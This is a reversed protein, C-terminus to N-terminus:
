LDCRIVRFEIEGGSPDVPQSVRGETRDLITQIARTNGELAQSVLIFALVQGFTVQPGCVDALATSLRARMTDPVPM